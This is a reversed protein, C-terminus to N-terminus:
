FFYAGRSFDWFRCSYNSSNLVFDESVPSLPCPQFYFNSIQIRCTSSICYFFPPPPCLVPCHSVLPHLPSFIPSISSWNKKECFWYVFNWTIWQWLLSICGNCIFIGKLNPIFFNSCLSQCLLILYLFVKFCKSFITSLTRLHSRLNRVM